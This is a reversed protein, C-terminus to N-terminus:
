YWILQIRTNLECTVLTQEREPVWVGNGAWWSQQTNFFLKYKSMTEVNATSVSFKCSCARYQREASKSDGDEYSSDTTRSHM